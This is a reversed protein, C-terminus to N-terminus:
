SGEPDLEAALADVVESQLWTLYRYLAFAHIREDDEAIEEMEETVELRTGLVLRLDNLAVLWAGLQEHDLREAEATEQMVLLAQLRDSLLQEHVMDRYQAEVAGDESAPPFLRVLSPDEPTEELLERLQAPLSALVEREDPVLTLTWGGAGDPELVERERRRRM